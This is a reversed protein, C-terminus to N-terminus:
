IYRLVEGCDDCILKEHWTQNNHVCKINQVIPAPATEAITGLEIAICDVQRMIICKEGTEDTYERGTYRNSFHVIDGVKTEMPWATYGCGPCETHQGVAIVKGRRTFERGSKAADPVIIGGKTVVEGGDLPVVAVRDSLLKINM